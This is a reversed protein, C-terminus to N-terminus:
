FTHALISTNEIHQLKATHAFVGFAITHRLPRFFLILSDGSHPLNYSDQPYVLQRLNEVNELAVHTEDPRPWLPRIEDFIQRRPYSIVRRTVRHFGTNGPPGLYTVGIAGRNLVGFLLQLKVKVVDLVM